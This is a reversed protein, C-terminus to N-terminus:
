FCSWPSWGVDAVMRLSVLVNARGDYVSSGPFGYRAAREPWYRLRMQFVGGNGNYYARPRFRSECRGIRLATVVGGPIVGAGYKREMRGVQCRILMRVQWWGNAETASRWHPWHCPRTWARARHAAAPGVLGGVIVVILVALSLFRRM